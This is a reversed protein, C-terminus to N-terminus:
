VIESSYLAEGALPAFLGLEYTLVTASAGLIVIEDGISSMGIETEGALTKLCRESMEQQIVDIWSQGFYLLKRPKDLRKGVKCRHFRIGM